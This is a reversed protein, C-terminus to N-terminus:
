SCFPLNPADICPDPMRPPASGPAARAADAAVVLLLFVCWAMSRMAKGM